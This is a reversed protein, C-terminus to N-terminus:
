KLKQRDLLIKKFHKKFTSKSIPKRLPPPLNNWCKTAQYRFSGEFARTKHYPTVLLLSNTRRSNYSYTAWKLKSYLYPPAKYRVISHVCSSFHLIRRSEMNLMGFRNLYPTIHSRPPINFIFRMCANQVRQITRKSSELLCPGVVIDGYNLRSLILSECIKLRVDESLLRRIKYLVKIRFLCNKAINEIHSEFRLRSDMLIGLNRAQHVYEVPTGLISVNPNHVEVNSVQKKSGLIMFKSKSPNLMLANRISWQAISDLDSNLKSLNSTLNQTDTHIYIQVDDAYLHFKCHKIQHTIDASYLIFLIPGLISGQPVGRISESISSKSIEGNSAKVQVIQSRDTLYSRFWNVTPVDFGYFHLKALLLPISLSDFARSFDLLTLITAKGQDQAALVNDVVESLATATSVGDVGQANSQVSLIAKSVTM